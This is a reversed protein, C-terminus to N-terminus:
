RAPLLLPLPVQAALCLGTPTSHRAQVCGATTSGPEATRPPLPASHTTQGLRYLHSHQSQLILAVCASSPCVVGASPSSTHFCGVVLVAGKRVCCEAAVQFTTPKRTHTVRVPAVARSQQQWLQPHKAAVEIINGAAQLYNHSCPAGTGERSPKTVFSERTCVSSGQKTPELGTNDCSWVFSNSWKTGATHCTHRAHTTLASNTKSDQTHSCQLFRVAM